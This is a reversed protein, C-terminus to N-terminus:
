SSLKLGYIYVDVFGDTVIGAITLNAYIIQGSSYVAEYANALLMGAGLSAVAEGAVVTLATASNIVIPLIIQTGGSTSGISFTVNGTGVLATSIRVICRTLIFRGLGLPAPVTYISVNRTGPAFAIRSTSLAGEVFRKTTWDDDGVPDLGRGIVFAADTSNRAEVASSNNKIQPGSLGIQFLTESTGRIKTYLTM